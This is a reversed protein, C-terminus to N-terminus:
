REPNRICNSLIRLLRQPPCTGLLSKWISHAPTCFHCGFQRLQVILTCKIKCCLLLLVMWLDGITCLEFFIELSTVSSQLPHHVLFSACLTIVRLGQLYAHSLIEKLPIGDLVLKLSSQGDLKDFVSYILCHPLQPGETLNKLNSIQIVLTKMLTAGQSNIQLPNNGHAVCVQQLFDTMRSEQLTSMVDPCRNLKSLFM